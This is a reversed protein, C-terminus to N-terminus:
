IEQIIQSQSPALCLQCLKMFPLDSLSDGAGILLPAKDVKTIHNNILYSLALAKDILCPKITLVHGNQVLETHENLLMDVNYQEIFLTADSENKFKIEVFAPMDHDEGSARCAVLLPQVKDADSLAVERDLIKYIEYICQSDIPHLFHAICSGTQYIDTGHTSIIYDWNFGMDLKTVDDIHRATIAVRKDSMAYVLQKLQDPMVMGREADDKRQFVISAEGVYCTPAKRKPYILTHDLDTILWRM